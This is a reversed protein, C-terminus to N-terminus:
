AASEHGGDDDEGGIAEEEQAVLDLHFVRSLGQAQGDDADAARQDEGGVGGAPEGVPESALGHQGDSHDTATAAVTAM